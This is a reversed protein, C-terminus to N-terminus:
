GKGIALKNAEAWHFLEVDLYVWDQIKNLTKASIDAKKLSNANANEPRFTMKMGFREEINEIFGRFNSQFGVVAFGKLNEKAAEFLEDDTPNCALRYQQRQALRHDYAVQWVMCNFLDAVLNPTDLLNVFDDIKYRSAMFSRDSIEVGTDYLKALYHYCSIFRDVPDRLVTILDGGLNSASRFSIHGSFIAAGARKHSAFDFDPGVSLFSKGTGALAGRLSSGATRAIHIHFIPRIDSNEKYKVLRGEQSGHRLYHDLASLIKGDSVARRIDPYKEMYWESDFERYASETTNVDQESM